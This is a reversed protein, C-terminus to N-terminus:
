SLSSAINRFNGLSLLSSPLLDIWSNSVYLSSSLDITTLQAKHTLFYAVERETIYRNLLLYKKFILEILNSPLNLPATFDKSIQGVNAVVYSVDLNLLSSINSEM